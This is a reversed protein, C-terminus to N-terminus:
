SLRGLVPQGRYLPKAFLMQVDGIVREAFGGECYCLYYDWMRIFEENYGLDRIQEINNFFRERWLRLTRAYHPTIDEMHKLELNSHQGSVETLAKISPLCAGPFIYRQIWDIDNKAKEYRKDDITIAQILALGDEKLLRGLARFYDPYYQHGVAEIMEISVLKDYKGTLNRYDEQLLTVLHGVGERQIHQRAYEYQQQSITTTTVRCGYKKAAYAAMGGWGTGIELLHDGPQLDLKECIRKLKYLSGEQLSSDPNPFIASSYMMTPDLFLQFLDNGLDYHAAINRRSGKETNRNKLHYALQAPKTMLAFGSDVREVTALNLSMFRIVKTTDPSFWDGSMYAEGAGISGGLLMDVYCGPDKIHLEAHVADPDLSGTFTHTGESDIISLTGYEVQKFLNFILSRCFKKMGKVPAATAMTTTNM